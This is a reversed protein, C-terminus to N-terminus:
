KQELSRGILARDHESDLKEGLVAGAAAAVLRATEARLDRRAATVDRALQERAESVSRETQAVAKARATELQATADARAASLIAEATARAAAVVDGAKAEAQELSAKAERELRTASELEDRKADLAKILYPFVFKGMIWVVVFFALTNLILAQLNLGLATALGGFGGSAIKFNQMM